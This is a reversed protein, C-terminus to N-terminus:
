TQSQVITEQKLQAWMQEYDKNEAETHKCVSTYDFVMKCTQCETKNLLNLDMFFHERDTKMLDDM